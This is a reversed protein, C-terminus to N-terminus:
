LPRRGHRSRVRQSGGRERRCVAMKGGRGHFGCPTERWQKYGCPGQRGGLLRAERVQGWCHGRRFDRPRPLEFMHPLRPADRKRWAPGGCWVHWPPVERLSKPPHNTFDPPGPTHDPVAKCRSAAACPMTHRCSHTHDTQLQQTHCKESTRNLLFIGFHSM